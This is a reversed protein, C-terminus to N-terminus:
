TGCKDKTTTIRAEGARRRWLEGHQQPVLPSSMKVCRPSGRDSCTVFLCSIFSTFRFSVFYFLCFCFSSFPFPIFHLSTFPSAFLMSAFHNVFLFLFPLSVFRFSVFLCVFLCVLLSVFCVVCYLLGQEPGPM